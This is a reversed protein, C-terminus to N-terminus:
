AMAYRIIVIGSGGAGGNYTSNYSGSGGRGGGGGGTNAVGATGGSTYLSGAGGGASATSVTTTSGGGGGGAYAGSVGTNTATAWSSYTTLGNGGNGGVAGANTGVSSYGGGGGGNYPNSGYGIGGNNGQGITGTGGTAGNSASGGGSGGSGPAAFSGNYGGGGGGGNAATLAGFVSNSGTGGGPSSNTGGTGGGGVTVNYITTTLAQSSYTAVGGAGGGGGTWQGGGGGGAVVLVDATLTIQPTFTGSSLFAHYWYTGDNAVINGGTAKPAISPDTGFAAIGYISFTSGALFSGSVTTITISTVASTVSSFSAGWLVRASDTGFNETINDVSVFKPASSFCDALYLENNSYTSSTANEDSIWIGSGQSDSGTGAVTGFLQKASSISTGNLTISCNEWPSTGFGTGNGRGSMLIKLDNYGTQPINNFTISNATQTLEITELLVHNEAM